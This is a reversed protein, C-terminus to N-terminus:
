SKVGQENLKKVALELAKMHRYLMLAYIFGRANDAYNNFERIEIEGDNKPVRIIMMGDYNSSDEEQIAFRYAAVQLLYENYIANSTKIDGIYKKGAIECIFDATGAYNYKRSYVTRESAIFKVKNKKVWGLFAQIAQQMQPNVPAPPNEGKIYEEIWKHIMSGLDAADQKRQRHARKAAELMTKIQVEDYTIGPRLNGALYGVTENVAWPILAPKAIIGLVTTVGLVEKDGVRYKHGNQNFTLTVEGNYMQMTKTSTIKADAKIM